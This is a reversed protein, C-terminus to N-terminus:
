DRNVVKITQQKDKSTIKVLYIRNGKAPAIFPFTYNGQPLKGEYLKAVKKGMLDFVELTINQADPNNITIGTKNRFPNPYAGITFDINEFTTSYSLGDNIRFKKIFVGDGDSDYSLYLHNDIQAMYPRFHQHGAISRNDLLKFDNDFVAIKITEPDQAKQQHMYGIQWLNNQRDFNVGTSFYNKEGTLGHILTDTFTERPTWDPDWHYVVLHRQTIDGAFIYFQHNAYVAHALRPWPIPSHVVSAQLEKLDPDFKKMHQQQVDKGWLLYIATKDTVMLLHNTGNDQSAVTKLRGIREGNLSFKALYLRDDGGTSFTLYIHGKFIVHQHDKIYSGSSIEQLDILLVPPSVERLYTNLTRLHIQNGTGSSLYLHNGDASPICWINSSALQVSDDLTLYNNAFVGSFYFCLLASFLRLLIKM